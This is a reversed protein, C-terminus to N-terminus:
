GRIDGASILVPSLLWSNCEAPGPDPCAETTHVKQPMCSSGTNDNSWPPTFLELVNGNASWNILHKYTLYSIKYIKFLKYMKYLKRSVSSNRLKRPFSLTSIPYLDDATAVDSIIKRRGRKKKNYYEPTICMSTTTRACKTITTVWPDCLPWPVCKLKSAQICVAISHLYCM